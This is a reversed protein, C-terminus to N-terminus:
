SLVAPFYQQYTEWGYGGDPGDAGQDAEGQHWLVGRIGHTLRAQQVRALWRGYITAADTRNAPNPMHQDIRTGGVAGNVICIPMKQSEVLHKALDMGWYGLQWQGGERRVANGWGKSVDGEMSGFSRIWESSYETREGAWDTAVANSQGDILYADGCVLNTATHFM